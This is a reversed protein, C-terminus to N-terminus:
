RLHGSVEVLEQRYRGKSLRPMRQRLDYSGLKKKSKPSPERGRLTLITSMYSFRHFGDISDIDKVKILCTTLKDSRGLAIIKKVHSVSIRNM